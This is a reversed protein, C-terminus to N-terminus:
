AQQSLSLFSQFERRLARGVPRRSSSADVHLEIQQSFRLHQHLPTILDDSSPAQHHRTTAHRLTSFAHLQNIITTPLLALTSSSTSPYYRKHFARTHLASTLLPQLTGNSTAHNCLWSLLLRSSRLALCQALIAQCLLRLLGETSFLAKTAGQTVLSFSTTITDPHNGFRFISVLPLFLYPM